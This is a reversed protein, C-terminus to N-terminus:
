AIAAAGRKRLFLEVGRTIFRFFVAKASEDVSIAIGYAHGREGSARFDLVPSEGGVVVETQHGLMASVEIRLDAEYNLIVEVIFRAIEADAVIRLGAELLHLLRKRQVGVEHAARQFDGAQFDNKASVCNGAGVAAVRFLQDVTNAIGALVGHSREDGGIRESRLGQIQLVFDAGDREPELCVDDREVAIREVVDGGDAADGEDHLGSDNVFINRRGVDRLVATHHRLTQQRYIKFLNKSAIIRKLTNITPKIRNMGAARM